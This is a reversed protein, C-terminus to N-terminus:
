RVGDNHYATRTARLRKLPRGIRLEGLEIAARVIAMRGSVGYRRSLAELHKKAGSETITMRRAIEKNVLGDAVLHLVQQQRPTIARRPVAHHAARARKQALQTGRREALPRNAM